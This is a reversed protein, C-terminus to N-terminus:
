KNQIVGRKRATLLPYLLGLLFKPIYVQFYDQSHGQKGDEWDILRAIKIGMEKLNNGPGAFKLM